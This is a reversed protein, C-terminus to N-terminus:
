QIRGRYRERVAEWDLGNYDPYIYTDRVAEWLKSFM